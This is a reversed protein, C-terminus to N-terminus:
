RPVVTLTDGSVSWSCGIQACAADLVQRLPAELGLKVQKEALEPALVLQYGNIRALIGLATAAASQEIYAQIPEDLSAPKRGMAPLDPRGPREGGLPYVTIEVSPPDARGSFRWGCDISECVATLATRLKVREMRITVPARVAPDVVIRVASREINALRKHLTDWLVAEMSGFVDAPSASRVDIGFRGSLPDWAQGGPTPLPKGAPLVAVTPETATPQTPEAAGAAMAGLLAASVLTVLLSNASHCM